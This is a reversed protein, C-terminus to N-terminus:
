EGVTLAVNWGQEEMEALSWTPGDRDGIQFTYFAAEAVAPATFAFSCTGDGSGDSVALTGKGITTGAGDLVLIDTGEAMDEYGGVGHCDIHGVTDGTFTLTGTVDHVAASPAVTVAPGSCAVLLTILLAGLTLRTLNTTM